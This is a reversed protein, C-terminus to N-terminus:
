SFTEREDAFVWKGYKAILGTKIKNAPFYTM